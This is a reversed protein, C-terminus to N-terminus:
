QVIKVSQQLVNGKQKDKERKRISNCKFALSSAGFRRRIYVLACRMQAALLICVCSLLYKRPFNKALIRDINKKKQMRVISSCSKKIEMKIIKVAPFFFFFTIYARTSVLMIDQFFFFSEREEVFDFVIHIKTKRVYLWYVFIYYAPLDVQIQIFQYFLEQHM